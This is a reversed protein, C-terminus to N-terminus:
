KVFARISIESTPPITNATVTVTKIIEDKQGPKPHFKVEIYDFKGPAIPGEPKHPMTCGCSAAVDAIILPNNGTNTVKFKCLNDSDPKVNGYDHRLKDFSLTTSTRKEEDLRRKEEKEFAEIEKKLEVESQGGAAVSSVVEGDKTESKESCSFLSAILIGSLIIKKM